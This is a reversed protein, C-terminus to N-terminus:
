DDRSFCRAFAFHSYEGRARLDALARVRDERLDGGLRETDIEFRDLDNLRVRAANRVTTWRHSRARRHYYSLEDLRGHQTQLLRQDAASQQRLLIVLGVKLFRASIVDRLESRQFSRRSVLRRWIYM